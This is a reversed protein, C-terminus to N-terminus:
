SAFFSKCSTSTITCSAFFLSPFVFHDVLQGRHRFADAPHQRAEALRLERALRRLVHERKALIDQMQPVDIDLAVFLAYLPNERLVMRRQGVEIACTQRPLAVVVM